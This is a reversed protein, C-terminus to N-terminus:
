RDAVVAGGHHHDEVERRSGAVHPVGVMPPISPLRIMQGLESGDMVQSAMGGSSKVPKQPQPMHPM